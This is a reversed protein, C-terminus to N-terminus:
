FPDDDIKGQRTDGLEVLTRVYTHCRLSDYATRLIASIGVKQRPMSRFKSEKPLLCDQM